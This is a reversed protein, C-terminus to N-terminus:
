YGSTGSPPAIYTKASGYRAQRTVGIRDALEQQTM